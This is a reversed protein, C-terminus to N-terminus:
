TVIAQLDSLVLTVMTARTKARLSVMLLHIMRTTSWGDDDNDLLDDKHNTPDLGYFVEWGDWCGGGDTDMDLPDTGAKFEEKNTLHDGDPDDPDPQFGPGWAGVTTCMIVLIICVLTPIGRL